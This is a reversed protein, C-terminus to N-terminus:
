LLYTETVKAIEELNSQTLNPHTPLCVVHKVGSNNTFHSTPLVGIFTEVKESICKLIRRSLQDVPIPQPLQLTFFLPVQCHERNIYVPLMTALKEFNHQRREKTISFIDPDLQAKIVAATYASMAHKHGGGARYQGAFMFYRHMKMPRIDSFQLLRITTIDYNTALCGGEGAVILKNNSFSYCSIDVLPDAQGFSVCRDEIVFCSERNSKIFQKDVVSNNHGTLIFINFVDSGPNVVELQVEDGWVSKLVIVNHNELLGLVSFYLYESVYFVVNRGNAQELAFRVALALASTGSSTLVVNKTGFYGCLVEETEGIVSSFLGGKPGPQSAVRDVNHGILARLKESELTENLRIM